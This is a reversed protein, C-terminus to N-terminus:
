ANLSVLGVFEQQLTRLERDRSQGCIILFFITIQCLLWWNYVLKNGINGTLTGALSKWGLHSVSGAM